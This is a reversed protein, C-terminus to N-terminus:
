IYSVSQIQMVVGGCVPQVNAKVQLYDIQVVMM